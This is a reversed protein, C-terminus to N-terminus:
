DDDKYSFRIEYKEGHIIPIIYHILLDKKNAYREIIQVRASKESITEVVMTKVM